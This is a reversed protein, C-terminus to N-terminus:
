IEKIQEILDNQIIGCSLTQEAVREPRPEKLQFLNPHHGAIEVKKPSIPAHMGVLCAIWVFDPCRRQKVKAIGMGITIQTPEGAASLASRSDDRGLLFVRPGHSIHINLRGSWEAVTKKFLTQLCVSNPKIAISEQLPRAPSKPGLKFFNKPELCLRLTLITELSRSANKDEERNTTSKQPHQHLPLQHILHIYVTM